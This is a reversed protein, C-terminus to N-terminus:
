HGCRGNQSTKLPFSLPCFWFQFCKRVAIRYPIERISLCLSLSSTNEVYWDPSVFIVSQWITFSSTWLRFVSYLEASFIIIFSQSPTNIESFSLLDRTAHISIQKHKTTIDVFILEDNQCLRYIRFFKDFDRLLM